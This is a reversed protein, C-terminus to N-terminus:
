EIELPRPVALRLWDNTFAALAAPVDGEYDQLVGHWRGDSDHWLALDIRSPLSIQTSGTRLYKLGGAAVADLQGKDDLRVGVIGLADVEVEQVGIKLTTQIPDGTPEKEAAMLIRTGDILRSHGQCPAPTGQAIIEIGLKSLGLAAQPEIGRRTLGAVVSAVGAAEDAMVSMEAPLAAEGNFPRGDFDTTWTGIRYLATKRADAVQRLFQATQPNEFEPHYFVMAAYRQPGYRLFGDEDVRLTKGGIESSPILDAPFGAGRLQEALKVGAQGHAPGAWNMACAQGFIVAVPCDAPTKAIFNLLRVRCEARM